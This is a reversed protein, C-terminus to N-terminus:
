QYSFTPVVGYTRLFMRKSFALSEQQSVGWRFRHFETEIRQASAKYVCVVALQPM